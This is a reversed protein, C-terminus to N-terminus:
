PFTPFPEQGVWQPFCSNLPSLLFTITVTGPVMRQDWQALGGVCITNFRKVRWFPEWIYVPFRQIPHMSGPRPHALSWVLLKVPFSLALAWVWLAAKKILGSAAERCPLHFSLSSDFSNIKGIICVSPSNKEM